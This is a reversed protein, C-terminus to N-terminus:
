HKVVNVRRATANSAIRPRQSPKTDIDGPIQLRDQEISQVDLNPSYAQGVVANPEDLSSRGTTPSHSIASQFEGDSDVDTNAGGPTPPQMNVSSTTTSPTLASTLTPTPPQETSETVPSEPTPSLSRLREVPRTVPSQVRLQARQRRSSATKHSTAESESGDNRV